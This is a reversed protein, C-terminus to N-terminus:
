RILLLGGKRGTRAQWRQRAEWPGEGPRLYVTHQAVYRRGAEIQTATM